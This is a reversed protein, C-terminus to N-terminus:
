NKKKLWIKEFESTIRSETTKSINKVKEIPAPSRKNVKVSSSSTGKALFESVSLSKAGLATVAYKIDRDDTM